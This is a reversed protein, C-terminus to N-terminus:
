KSFYNIQLEIAKNSVNYGGGEKWVNGKFEATRFGGFSERAVDLLEDVDRSDYFTKTMKYRGSDNLLELVRDDILQKEQLTRGNLKIIRLVLSEPSASNEYNYLTAIAINKNKDHDM